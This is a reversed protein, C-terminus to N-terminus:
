SGRLARLKTQLLTRKLRSIRDIFLVGNLHDIEHQFCIALLGEADISVEEGERNIGKVTVAAARRVAERIDPLSLCGEEGEVSGESRTIVPNALQYLTGRKESEEDHGVDVVIVRQKVGVQNAALGIGPAHYMTEAMDDMLQAIEGDINPVEEARERLVPDPYLIINRIAM